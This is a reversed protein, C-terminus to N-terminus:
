WVKHGFGVWNWINFAVIPSDGGFNIDPFPVPSIKQEGPAM